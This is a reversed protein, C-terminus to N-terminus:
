KTILNGHYQYPSIEISFQDEEPLWQVGLTKVKPLHEELLNVKSARDDIAIEEM